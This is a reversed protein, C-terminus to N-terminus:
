GGFIVKIDTGKGPNSRVVLSGGMSEARERMSSLGLGGCSNGEKLDFGRGNDRIEFEVREGNQRMKLSVRTAHAHKLTNNLAEIAIRFLCDELQPPLDATGDIQFSARLGARKEVSDLRRRLAKVLGEEALIPPRLEFILLRMEQHAHEAAEKLHSLHHEVSKFDREKLKRLGAEAFLGMSYLLQTVSDHLERSLRGREEIVALKEAQQHLRANEIAVAAQDAFPRIIRLDEEVFGRPKNVVSLAGYAGGQGRLPVSLISVLQQFPEGLHNQHQPAIENVLVPEGQLISQGSFSRDLPLREFPLTASGTSYARQIWEGNPELMFLTSGKAGTLDMAKRCVIEMTEELSFKQLLATALQQLSQSETLRKRTEQYLRANEVALAVEGAISGLLAVEEPDVIRGTEAIVSLVGLANAGVRIPVGAYAQTRGAPVALLPRVSESINPVIMPEGAEIVRGALGLHVPVDSIESAASPPIGQSAALRLVGKSADLLHIAGVECAMVRLVQDLSRELVTELDISSSAAATVEYLAALERTRNAVKEELGTYLEMLQSSMRNFQEALTEVEDGTPATITMGFNGEAVQQSAKILERLPATIRRSGIAAAAAPLFIGAVLLSALFGGYPRSSRSLTAWDDEIVLGWSTGPIPAYAAVIDLNGGIDLHLAGRNGKQLDQIVTDTSSVKGIMAQSEHYIVRGSKEVIQITGHSESFLRRLSGYFTSGDLNNLSFMGVLAGLFENEEGIVPVSLVIAAEGLPGKEGEISSFFARQTHMVQQFFPYDSWNEGLFELREPEAAIVRGRDSLLVVGGDFAVLRHEFRRLVYRKNLSGQNAIESVHTIPTLIDIYITLEDRVQDSLLYALERDRGLVLEETINEYAVLAIIVVITSVIVTPVLFWMIIKTRLGWRHTALVM